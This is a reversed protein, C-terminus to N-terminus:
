QKKEKLLENLNNEVNQVRGSLNELTASHKKLDEQFSTAVNNIADTLSSFASKIEKQVKNSHLWAAVTFFFGAQVIQNSAAEGLLKSVMEPSEFLRYAMMSGASAIGGFAFHRPKVQKLKEKM